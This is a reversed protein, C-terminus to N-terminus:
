GIKVRHMAEDARGQRQDATPVKQIDFFPVGPLTADDVGHLASRIPDACMGVPAGLQIGRYIGLLLEELEAVARGTEDDAKGTQRIRREIVQQKGGALGDPRGTRQGFAGIQTM